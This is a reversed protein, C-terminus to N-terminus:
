VNREDNGETGAHLFACTRDIERLLRRMRFNYLWYSIGAGDFAGYIPFALSLMRMATPIAPQFLHYLAFLVGTAFMGTIQYYFRGPGMRRTENWTDFNYDMRGRRFPNQNYPDNRALERRREFDRREADFAGLASILLAATLPLTAIGFLAWQADSAYGIMGLAARAVACVIFSAAGWVVISQPKQEKM